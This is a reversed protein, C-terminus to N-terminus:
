NILSLIRDRTWEYDDKRADGGKATFNLSELSSFVNYCLIREEYNPIDVGREKYRERCISAFDRIPPWFSLWAVDYLFDGYKSETWDLVATIQKGNAVVNSFGYDGHLLYLEEPCYPVLEVLKKFLKRVVEKELFTEKCLKEYEGHKDATINLLHEKWSNFPAVGRIDWRGFKGQGRVDISHITDLVDLAFPIVQDYEEESLKDLVTGKAKKSIAFHQAQNLEGIETIEPIPLQASGFYKFAYVDKHFGTSDANVRLVFNEGQVSFSFAQSLEGGKIAELDLVQEKFRADLFSEVEKENVKTKTLSVNNM